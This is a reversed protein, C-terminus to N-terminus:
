CLCFFPNSSHNRSGLHVCVVYGYIRSPLLRSVYSPNGTRPSTTRCPETHEVGADVGLYCLTSTAGSRLQFAIGIRILESVVRVATRVVPLVHWQPRGGSGSRAALLRRHEPRGRRIIIVRVCSKVRVPLFTAAHGVFKDVLVMWSASIYCELPM